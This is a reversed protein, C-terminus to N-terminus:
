ITTACYSVAQEAPSGADVHKILLIPKVLEMDVDTDDSNEASSGNLQMDATQQSLQEHSVEQKAEGHLQHILQEILKMLDKHNNQLCIIQQRAQRVKYIDIDNRPFGEEDVLPGHM